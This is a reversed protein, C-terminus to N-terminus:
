PITVPQTPWTAAHGGLLAVETSILAYVYSELAAGLNLFDTAGIAHAAGRADLLNFTAGGGPLGKGSGIGAAISTIRGVSSDDIPYTGNLSPTATSVIACGAALAAAFAAIPDITAPNHVALVANVAAIQPATMTPGFLIGTPTWSMQMGVIGAAVLENGFNPGIAITM